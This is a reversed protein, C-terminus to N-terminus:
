HIFGFQKTIGRVLATGCNCFKGKQVDLPKAAKGQQMKSIYVSNDTIDSFPTLSILAIM